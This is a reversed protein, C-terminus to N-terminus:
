SFSLTFQFGNTSGPYRAIDLIFLRLNDDKPISVDFPVLFSVKSPGRFIAFFLSYILYSGTIVFFGLFVIIVVVGYTSTLEYQLDTMWEVDYYSPLPPFEAWRFRQDCYKYVEVSLDKLQGFSDSPVQFIDSLLVEKDECLNDFPFGWWFWHSFSAFGVITLGIFFYNATSLRPGM